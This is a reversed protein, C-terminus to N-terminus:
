QYVLKNRNIYEDIDRIDIFIKRDGDGRVIPIKGAWILERMSWVSPGLYQAAEKLTYLRKGLFNVTGQKNKPSQYKKNKVAMDGYHLRGLSFPPFYDGWKKDIRM